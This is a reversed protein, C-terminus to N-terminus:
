RQMIEVSPETRMLEQIPHVPPGKEKFSELIFYFLCYQM